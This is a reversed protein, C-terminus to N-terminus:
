EEAGAVAMYAQMAEEYEKDKGKVGALAAAAEWLKNKEDSSVVEDTGPEQKPSSGKLASKVGKDVFSQMAESFKKANDKFTDADESAPIYEALSVLDPYDSMVIDQRVLQQDLEDKDKKLNTFNDQTEKFLKDLDGKASEKVTADAKLEEIKAALKDIQERTAKLEAEKNNAVKQMGKYSAEWQQPTKSDPTDKETPPQAPTETTQDEGPKLDEKTENDEDTKPPM